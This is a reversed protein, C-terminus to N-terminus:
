WPHVAVCMIDASIERRIIKGFISDGGNHGEVAAIAAKTVEDAMELNPNKCSAAGGISVVGPIATFLAVALM